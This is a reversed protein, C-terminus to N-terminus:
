ALACDDGRHRTVGIRGIRVRHAAILCPPLGDNAIHFFGIRLGKKQRVKGPCWIPGSLWLLLGKFPLRQPIRMVLRHIASIVEAIFPFRQDLLELFQILKVVDDFDPWVPVVNFPYHDREIARRGHWPLLIRNADLRCSAPRSQAGAALIPPFPRSRDSPV